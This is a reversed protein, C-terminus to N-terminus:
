RCTYKTKCVKIDPGNISIYMLQELTAQGLSNRVASKIRKMISFGREADASNHTIVLFFVMILAMNPFLDTMTENDFFAAIIEAVPMNRLQTEIKTPRTEMILWEADGDDVEVEVNRRIERFKHFFRMVGPWEQRADEVDINHEEGAAIAFHGLVVELDNNFAKNIGLDKVDAPYGHANFLRFLASTLQVNPFRTHLHEVLGNLYQMRNVELWEPGRGAVM